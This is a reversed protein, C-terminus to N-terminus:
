IDDYFCVNLTRRFCYLRRQELKGVFLDSNLDNMAANTGDVFVIDHKKGPMTSAYLVARGAENSCVATYVGRGDLWQKLYDVARNNADQDTSVSPISMLGMLMKADFGLSQACEVSKVSSKVNPDPKGPYANVAGAIVVSFALVFAAPHIKM